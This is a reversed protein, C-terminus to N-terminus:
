NHFLMDQLLYTLNLAFEKGILAPEAYDGLFKLIESSALGAMVSLSSAQQWANCIRNGNYFNDLM